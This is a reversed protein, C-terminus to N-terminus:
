PQGEPFTDKIEQVFVDSTPTIKGDDVYAVPCLRHFLLFQHAKTPAISLCWKNKIPVSITENLLLEMAEHLTHNTNSHLLKLMDVVQMYRPNILGAYAEVPVVQMLPNVFFVNGGNMAKSPHRRIHKQLFVAQQQWFYYQSEPFLSDFIPNNNNNKVVEEHQSADALWYSIKVKGTRGSVKEIYCWQNRETHHCFTNQYYLAFDKVTHPIIM